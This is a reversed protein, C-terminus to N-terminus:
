QGMGELGGGGRIAWPEGHGWNGGQPGHNGMGGTVGKYGMGRMVGRHSGMSGLRFMGEKDAQAAVPTATPIAPTVAPTATPMSPRQHTATDPTSQQVESWAEKHTSMHKPLPPPATGM